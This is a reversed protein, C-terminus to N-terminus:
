GEPGSQRHLRKCAVLRRSCAPPRRFVAVARTWPVIGEEQLLKKLKRTHGGRDIRISEGGTRYRVEVGEEVLDPDIGEGHHLALRLSGYAKGLPLLSGDAQLTGPLVQHSGSPDPLVFLHDRYRRICAGRWEVLPQADIRAPILENIVQYLRTAPPPPLGRLRVARRLVNRQRPAPLAQLGDIGLKGPTGLHRLDIDALDNLLESSEGVLEASRRLRNSVAPWRAALRPLIESRLFNRDFRTDANSPDDIWELSHRKAYAEIEDGPVGLMPRLLQGRGFSQQLGIGALGAPGSGRM